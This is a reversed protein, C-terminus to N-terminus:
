KSLKRRLGACGVLASGLLALTLGGDPVGQHFSQQIQSVSVEGDDIGLSIDKTM